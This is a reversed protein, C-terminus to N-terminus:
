RTVDMAADIVAARGENNRVLLTTGDPSGM